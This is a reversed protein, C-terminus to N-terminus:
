AVKTYAGGNNNTNYSGLVEDISSIVANIKTKGRRAEDKLHKNENIYKTNEDELRGTKAELGNVRNKLMRNEDIFKRNENILANVKKTKNEVEDTLKKILEENKAITERSQEEKSILKSIVDSLQDYQDNNDYSSTAYGEDTSEDVGFFNDFTTNSAEEESNTLNNINDTNISSVEPVEEDNFPAYSINTNIDSNVSDFASTDIDNSVNVENANILQSEDVNPAFQEMASPMVDEYQQLEELPAPIFEKSLDPVVPATGLETFKEEVAPVAVEPATQIDVAPVPNDSPIFAASYNINSVSGMYPATDNIEPVEVSQAEVPAIEPVEVSMAAPAVNDLLSVSEPTAVGVPAVPETSAVEVDVPLEAAGYVPTPNVEEAPMEINNTNVEPVEVPMTPAVFEPTVEPAVPEPTTPQVEPVDFAKVDSLEPAKVESIVEVKTLDQVVNSHSYINNDDVAIFSANDGMVKIDYEGNVREIKYIIAENYADEFVFRLSANSDLNNAKMTSTMQNKINRSDLAIEQVKAADTKMEQNIKVSQMDSVAKVCVFIDDNVQSIRSYLPEILIDGESSIMQLNAVEGNRLTRHLAVLVNDSVIYYEGNNLEKEVYLDKLIKNGDAKIIKLEVTAYKDQEVRAKIIKLGNNNM